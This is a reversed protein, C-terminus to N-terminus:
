TKIRLDVGTATHTEATINSVLIPGQHEGRDGESLKKGEDM